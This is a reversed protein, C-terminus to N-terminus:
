KPRLVTFGLQRAAAAQAEDHTLLRRLGLAQMTALHLRDLTRCVNSGMPQEAIEVAEAPFAAVEFPPTQLMEAMRSIMRRHQSPSIDGALRRALL